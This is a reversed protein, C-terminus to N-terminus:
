RDRREAAHRAAGEKRERTAREASEKRERAAREHSEKREREHREHSEKREREYRDASEQDTDMQPGLARPVHREGGLLRACHGGESREAARQLGYM